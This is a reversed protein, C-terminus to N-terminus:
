VFWSFLYMFAFLVCFYTVSQGVNEVFQDVSKVSEDRSKIQNLGIFASTLTSLGLAQVMGIAPAGMPEVFWAWGFVLAFAKITFGVVVLGLALLVKM